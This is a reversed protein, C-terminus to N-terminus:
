ILPVRYNNHISPDIEAANRHEWIGVGARRRWRVEGGEGAGGGVTTPTSPPKNHDPAKAGCATIGGPLHVSLNSMNSPPLSLFGDDM